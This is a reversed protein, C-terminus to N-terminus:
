PAIDAVFPGFSMNDRLDTLASATVIQFGQPEQWRHQETLDALPGRAWTLSTTASTLRRVSPSLATFGSSDTIAVAPASTAEGARLVM